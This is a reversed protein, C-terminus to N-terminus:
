QQLDLLVSPCHIDPWDSADNGLKQFYSHWEELAIGFHMLKLDYAFDDSIRGFIIPRLEKILLPSLESFFYFLETDM